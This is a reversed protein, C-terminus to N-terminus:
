SALPLIHSITFKKKNLGGSRYVKHHFGYYVFISDKVQVDMIYTYSHKKLGLWLPKIRTMKKNNIELTAKPGFFTIQLKGCM